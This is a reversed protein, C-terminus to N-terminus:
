KYHLTALLLAQKDFIHIFIKSSSNAIKFTKIGAALFSVKTDCPHSFESKTVLTGGTTLTKLGSPFYSAIQTM